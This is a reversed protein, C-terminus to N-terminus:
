KNYLFYRAIKPMSKSFTLSNEALFENMIRSAIDASKAEVEIEYDSSQNFITYDLEVLHGAYPLQYRKTATSVCSTLTPILFPYDYEPLKYTNKIQDFQAKTLPYNYEQNTMNQDKIKITLEYRLNNYNRIRLASNNNKFYNDISEFYINEQHIYQNLNYKKLLKEFELKSILSKAEHEFQM